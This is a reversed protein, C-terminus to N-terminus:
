KYSKSTTQVIVFKEKKSKEVLAVVVPTIILNVIKYNTTYTDVKFMGLTTMLHSFYVIM